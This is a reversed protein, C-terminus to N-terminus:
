PSTRDGDSSVIAVVFVVLLFTIGAITAAEVSGNGDVQESEQVTATSVAQAAVPSLALGAAASAAILTRLKM